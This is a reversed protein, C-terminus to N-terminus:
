DEKKPYKQMLEKITTKNTAARDLDEDSVKTWDIVLDLTSVAEDDIEHRMEDVREKRGGAASNRRTAGKGNNRVSRMALTGPEGTPAM